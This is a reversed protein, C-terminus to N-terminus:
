TRSAPDWWCVVRRWWSPRTVGDNDDPEANQNLPNGWGWEAALQWFIPTPEEEWREGRGALRETRPQADTIVPISDLEVAELPLEKMTLVPKPPYLLENGVSIVITQGNRLAEDAEEPTM